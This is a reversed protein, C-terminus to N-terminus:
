FASGLPPGELLEEPFLNMYAKPYAHSWCFVLRPVQYPSPSAPRAFCLWLQLQCLGQLVCQWPCPRAAQEARSDMQQLCFLCWFLLNEAADSFRSTGQTTALLHWAPLPSSISGAAAQMQRSSSANTQQQRCRGPVAQIQRCRGADAQM